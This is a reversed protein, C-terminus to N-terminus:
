CRNSESIISVFDVQLEKNTANIFLQLEDCQRRPQPYPIGCRGVALSLKVVAEEFRALQHFLVTEGIINSPHPM